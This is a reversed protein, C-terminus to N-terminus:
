TSNRGVPTNSVKAAVVDNSKKSRDHYHRQDGMDVEVGDAREAIYDDMYSNPIKHMPYQYDKAFYGENDKPGSTDIGLAAPTQESVEASVGIEWEAMEYYPRLTQYSFPWDVGRGFRTAIEFDAPLMRLSTGLWHLTTGGYARLYNSGFPMPGQQVFYGETDPTTGRVSTIDMVSPSPSTSLDPYPSNPTKALSLYFQELYDRYTDWKDGHKAGSELILVSHGAKILQKALIGGTMGAGVIVVDYVLDDDELDNM